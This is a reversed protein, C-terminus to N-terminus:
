QRHAHHHHNRNPQRGPHRTVTRNAGSGGLVVDANPVLTTNSSVTSVTLDATPTETDGITFALAATSSNPTINQNAVSSITPPTNAMVAFTAAITHNATVNNFTYSTVAGVGSGDVTVGSVAYGSNPTINFTQSAGSNVTVAGAPSISGGTGASATITYTTGSGTFTAAITHNAAVSNFTYSAVAGVSGGDVTVGSIAYGSNPTINFTQKAGANVIVSGAPSISGGTGASSTITYTTGSATLRNVLYTELQQRETDSLATTYVFSDGYYGNYTTWGDPWNRGFTVNNAFGGAVGPVISTMSSTSTVNMVQTGNAYVKYTGDQQVILSLITTQGDPIAATSFDLSGNRRVCVRGSGSMIGLVLRDYFFDVISYWNGDTGFRTPKAVTVITAGTCPIPSAITGLNLCDYDNYVNKVFKRGDIVEVSPSNQATLTKGAPLYSAWTSINGSAPLADTLFSCYIQGTQPISGSGGTGTFTATIAHSSTVNTFSYTGIASM